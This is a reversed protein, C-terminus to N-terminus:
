PNTKITGKLERGGTIQFDISNTPNIIRRGFIKSIEHLNNSTLNQEGTEMRAIASQSTKLSEALETQTMGREERLDKIFEGLNINNM